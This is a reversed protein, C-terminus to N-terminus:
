VNGNNIIIDPNNTQSDCNSNNKEQIMDIKMELQSLKELVEDNNDATMADVFISNVLSMGIIGGVFLLLSFYVRAFVAMGIGCKSAIAEPMEYWGEITFLRFLSYISQAPNGFYQPAANGFLFSTIISFILLFIVMGFTVIYSAKFAIKIGNVLSDINPIFYMMRLSKFARMMRFSLLINTGPFSLGFINICSPLALLVLIFDFRNWGDAWYASFGKVEIKIIAEVLFLLTFFSDMIVLLAVPSSTFGSMFIIGTNILVLVLMIHEDMFFRKVWEM